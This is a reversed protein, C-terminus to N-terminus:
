GPGQQNGLRGPEIWDADNNYEVYGNRVQIASKNQKGNRWKAYLNMLEQAM